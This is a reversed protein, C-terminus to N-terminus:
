AAAMLLRGNEAWSDRYIALLLEDWLRGDFYNHERLRGEIEFIRGLGSAFQSYNYEPLELYLKRFNWCAFVYRLFLAIGLIMVPSKASAFRAAGLAAHGHQFNARYIAVLGAPEGTRREIVLFQALAGTWIAQAWQEPGPTAGRFRWRMALESSLEARQLWHYDEPTIPRLEVHRGELPPPEFRKEAPDGGNRHAHEGVTWEPGLESTKMATLSRRALAGTQGDFPWM